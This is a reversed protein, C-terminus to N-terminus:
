FKRRFHRYKKYAVARAIDKDNWLRAKGGGVIKRLPPPTLGGENIWRHLTDNGIKLKKALAKTTLKM